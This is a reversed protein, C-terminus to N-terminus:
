ILFLLELRHDKYHQYTNNQYSNGQLLQWLFFSKGVAESVDKIWQLFTTMLKILEYFAKLSAFRMLKLRRPLNHEYRVMIRTDRRQMSHNHITGNDAQQLYDGLGAQV